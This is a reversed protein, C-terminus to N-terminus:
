VEPEIWRNPVTSKENNKDKQIDPTRLIAFWSNLSDM